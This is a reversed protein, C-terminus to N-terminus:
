HLIILLDLNPGYGKAEDNQSSTPARTFIKNEILNFIGTSTILGGGGHHQSNIMFHIAYKLCYKLRM